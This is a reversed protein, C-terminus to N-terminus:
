IKLVKKLNSKFEDRKNKFISNGCKPCIVENANGMYVKTDCHSCRIRHETIYSLEKMKLDHYSYMEKILKM